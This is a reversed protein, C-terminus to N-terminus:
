QMARSLLLSQFSAVAYGLKPLTFLLKGEARTLKRMDPANNADGRTTIQGNEVAIARHLVPESGARFMIIEGKQVDLSQAVYVIALDGPYFTPVMSGTRLLEPAHALSRIPQCPHDPTLHLYWLLFCQQYDKEDPAKGIIPFQTASRAM